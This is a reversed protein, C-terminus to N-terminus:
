KKIVSGMIGVDQNIADITEQSLGLARRAIGQYPLSKRVRAAGKSNDDKTITERDIITFGHLPKTTL